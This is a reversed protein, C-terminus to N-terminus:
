EEELIAFCKPCNAESEKYSGRFSGQKSLPWCLPFGDKFHRYHIVPNEDM